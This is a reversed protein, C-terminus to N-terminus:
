IFNQIDLFLYIWIAVILGTVRWNVKAYIDPFEKFRFPINRKIILAGMIFGPYALLCFFQFFLSYDNMLLMIPLIGFLVPLILQEIFYFRKLHSTNNKGPNMYFAAFQPAKRYGYLVSLFIFLIMFLFIAPTPLGLWESINSIGLYLSWQHTVRYFYNVLFQGPLLLVAAISFWHLFYHIHSKKKAKVAITGLLLGLLVLLVSPAGFVVIIRFKSWYFYHPEVVALNFTLMRSLGWMKAFLYTLLQYSFYVALHGMVFFATAKLVREPKIPTDKVM